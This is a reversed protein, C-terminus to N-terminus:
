DFPRHKQSKSAAHNNRLFNIEKHRKKHCPQCLWVVDLPQDYDEHHAISKQEGCRGCPCRVLLGQKIARAVASHAKARRNDEQRWARNVEAALKIREPAKARERDYARIKEINKNRHSLVDNKVCEKCKNLYGDVMGHHKYFENLPKITKCKFCNKELNTM